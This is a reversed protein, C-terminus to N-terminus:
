LLVDIDSMLGSIVSCRGVNRRIPLTQM